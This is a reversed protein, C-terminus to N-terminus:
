QRTKKGKDLDSCAAELIDAAVSLEDRAAGRMRRNNALYARLDAVTYMCKVALEHAAETNPTM